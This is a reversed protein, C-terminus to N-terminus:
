VYQGKSFEVVMLFQLLSRAHKIGNCMSCAPVVNDIYNSGGKVIALIHDKTITSVTLPKLCYACRSVFYDLRNKWEKRTHSGTVGKKRDRRLKEHFRLAERNALKWRLVAAKQKNPNKIRWATCLARAKDKNKSRWRKCAARAKEPNDKLWQKKEELRKGRNDM